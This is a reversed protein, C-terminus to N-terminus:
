KWKSGNKTDMKCQMKKKYEAIFNIINKTNDTTNLQKFKTSRVDHESQLFGNITTRIFEIFIIMQQPFNHM